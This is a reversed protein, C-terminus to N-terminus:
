YTVHLYLKRTIALIASHCKNRSGGTGICVCQWLSDRDGVGSENEDSNDSTARRRLLASPTIETNNGTM